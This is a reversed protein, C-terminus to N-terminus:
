QVNRALSARVSRLTSPHLLASVSDAAVAAARELQEPPALGPADEDRAYLAALRGELFIMRSAPYYGMHGGGIVDDVMVLGGGARHVGSSAFVEGTARDIGELPIGERLPETLHDWLAPDSCCWAYSTTDVGLQAIEVGDPLQVNEDQSARTVPRAEEPPVPGGSVQQGTSM